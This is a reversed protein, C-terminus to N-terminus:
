CYYSKYYTSASTDFRGLVKLVNKTLKETTIIPNNNTSLLVIQNIVTNCLSEADEIAGKRHKCSDHISLLLKTQSFPELFGTSHKIMLSKGLNIHELTTFISNCNDCERRRWISNQKKQHRSNIVSLKSGCNICVM